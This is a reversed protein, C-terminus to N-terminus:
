WELHVFRKKFEKGRIMHNVKGQGLGLIRTNLDEVQSRHIMLADHYDRILGTGLRNSATGAGSSSCTRSVEGANINTPLSHVNVEVQGQKMLLQLEMDAQNRNVDSSLQAEQEELGRLMENLDAQDATRHNGSTEGVYYDADDTLKVMRLVM